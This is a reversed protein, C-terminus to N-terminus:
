KVRAKEKGQDAAVAEIGLRGCVVQQTLSTPFRACRPPPPQDPFVGRWGNRQGKWEKSYGIELYPRIAPLGGPRPMQFM